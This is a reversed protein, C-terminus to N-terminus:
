KHELEGFNFMITSDFCTLYEHICLKNRNRQCYRQPKGSQLVNLKTSKSTYDFM